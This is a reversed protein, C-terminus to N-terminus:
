DIFGAQQHHRELRAFQAVVADCAPVLLEKDRSPHAISSFLSAFRAGAIERESPEASLSAIM